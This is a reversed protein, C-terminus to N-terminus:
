VRGLHPCPRIWRMKKSKALSSNISIKNIDPNSKTITKLYVICLYRRLTNDITFFFFFFIAWKGGKTVSAPFPYLSNQSHLYHSSKGM